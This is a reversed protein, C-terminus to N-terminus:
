EALQVPMFARASGEAIGVNILNRHRPKIVNQSPKGVPNDGPLDSEFFVITTKPLMGLSKGAALSSYAYGKSGQHAPCGLTKIGPDYAALDDAWHEALPLRDDFDAAYILSTRALRKINALCQTQQAGVRAQAFVPLFIAALIGLVVCFGVTVALVVMVVLSTKSKKLAAPESQM